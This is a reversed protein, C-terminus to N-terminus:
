EVLFLWRAQVSIAWYCLVGQRLGSIDLTGRICERQACVFGTSPTTTQDGTFDSQNVPMAPRATTAPGMVHDQLATEIDQASVM